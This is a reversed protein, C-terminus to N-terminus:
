NFWGAKEAARKFDEYLVGYCIVNHYQGNKYVASRKLGERQAGCKEMMAISATNYELVDSTLRHLQLEEFAFRMLTLGSDSAYGKKKPADQKLKIAYAANRNKWDIDTLSIMGLAEKTELSEIIFRLNRKDAVVREYWQMQELKSVPFSWGGIMREMEPDNITERLMEMDEPEMARLMVKKGYLNM